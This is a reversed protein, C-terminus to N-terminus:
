HRHSRYASGDYVGPFYKVATDGFEPNLAKLNAPLVQPNAMEAIQRRFIVPDIWNIGFGAHWMARLRWEADILFETGDLDEEGARRYLALLTNLARGSATCFQRDGSTGLPVVITTAAAEKAIVALQDLRAVSKAGAAVLHVPQGSFSDANRTTGDPCQVAFQPAPFAAVTVRGRLSALREGDANAHLFSVAGRDDASLATGFAPMADGLGATMIWYLDGDTHGYLHDATLDAPPM